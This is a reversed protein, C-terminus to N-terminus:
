DKVKKKATWLEWQKKELQKIFKFLELTNGQYEINRIEGNQHSVIELLWTYFM